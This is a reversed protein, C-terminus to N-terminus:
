LRQHRLLMATRMLHFIDGAPSIRVTGADYIAKFVSAESDDEYFSGDYNEFSENIVDVDGLSLIRRYADKRAADQGYTSLLSSKVNFGILKAGPATGSIGIGNAQTAAIIGAVNTGHADSLSFPTPDTATMGKPIEKGSNKYSQYEYNYSGSAINASLDPHKIEIGDDLVAVLAGSGNAGKRWAGYFLGDVLDSEADYDGGDRTNTRIYWQHSIMPDWVYSIDIWGQYFTSSSAALYGAHEDKMYFDHDLLAEPKFRLVLCGDDGVELKTGDSYFTILSYDSSGLPYLVVSDKGNLIDLSVSLNTLGFQDTSVTVKGSDSSCRGSIGSDTGSDSDSNSGSGAGGGSSGSNTNGGSSSGGGTSSSGNSTGSGGNSASSGGGGSGGGCSALFM